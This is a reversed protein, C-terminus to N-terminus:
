SQPKPELSQGTPGAHRFPLVQKLIGLGGYFQFLAILGDLQYRHRPGQLNEFMGYLLIMALFYLVVFRATLTAQQWVRFVGYVLAPMMAWHFVQPLDLFTYHETTHFPIPTLAMRPFGYLPNVFGDQLRGYADLLGNVGLASVVGVLGAPVLLWLAPRRRGAPSLLMAGLFAALLMLPVYFRTFFLVGGVSVALLVAAGYRGNGAMSVAYVAVATGTLVLSGKGNMITSWALVDPHLASFVFLGIVLSKPFGLGGRAAAAMFGAAAFTLVVNLAVPAFYAHGLLRLSEANYLYYIFHRGGAVSFLEPLHGYLNTVSVGQELLRRGLRLYTWDDLFNFTGDFLVGYYVSFITAKTAAVFLSWRPKRTIWLGILFGLVLIMFAPGALEVLQFPQATHRNM